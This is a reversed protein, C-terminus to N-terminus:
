SGEYYEDFYAYLDELEPLGLINDRVDIVRCKATGGIAPGRLGRGLMQSYLVISSTPRAICLVDMKPADFGTTLVGFNSLVSLDGSRFREISYARDDRDSSGDLHSATVGMFQLLAVLFKSQEVGTAFILCSAGERAYRAVRAAIEASRLDNRALEKLVRDPLDGRETAERKVRVTAKTRLVEKELRALVGERRLYAIPDDVELTVKQGFFFDALAQNESEILAGRGPTATLGLVRTDLTQLGKIAANYTPALAKHAEDVVILDAHPLRDQQNLSHALQLSTVWMWDRDEAGPIGRTSGWSRFLSLERSAYHGYVELFADTAQDCLESSHALWVVRSKASLHSDLFAAVLEMATRTKGSGTPMQIVARGNPPQLLEMASYFVGAQYKKLRKLPHRSPEVRELADRQVTRSPLLREPLKLVDVLAQALGERRWPQSVLWEVKESFEWAKSAPGAGSASIMKDLEEERSSYLLARRFEKRRIASPAGFADFLRSLNQTSYFRDASLGSGPELVPLIEEIRRLVTAGLYEELQAKPIRSWVSM